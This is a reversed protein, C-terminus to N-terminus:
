SHAMQTHYSLKSEVWPLSLLTTPFLCPHAVPMPADVVEETLAETAETQETEEDATNVVVKAAAEVVVDEKVVVEVAEPAAAPNEHQSRSRMTSTSSKSRKSESESVSPRLRVLSTPKM